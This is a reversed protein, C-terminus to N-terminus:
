LGANGFQGTSNGDYGEGMETFRAEKGDV